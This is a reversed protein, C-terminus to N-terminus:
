SNTQKCNHFIPSRLKTYTHIATVSNVLLKIQSITHSAALMIFKTKKWTVLDFPIKSLEQLHSSQTSTTPKHLHIKLRRRTPWKAKTYWQDTKLYKEIIKGVKLQWPLDKKLLENQSARTIQQCTDFVRKM